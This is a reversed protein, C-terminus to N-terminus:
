IEEGFLEKYQERSIYVARPKSGDLPGIFKHLEMQDIIRAARAYGMKFRRQVMSTSAQGTLIVCKLVSPMLDDFEKEEEMAEEQPLDEKVAIANEVERDFECVNNDKVFDVVTAVEENTVYAGQVRKPEDYDIPAYLMDGRGLLTEGGSQDLITRSDIISKVAFAIRSPLNAKITGTIVDVSPRQTALILHIGAARAKQAMSMIKDELEKRNNSMMLEALEDVIVVIYPLKTETGDKVMESKNFEQINRLCYKSLLLYRREMELKVWKFANIAQQADTIIEETLLHPIGKYITFEVHKPDILVLRVDEPSSKYLISIIISNLCASKGSGTAGAILLHPMKELNCIMNTGAIDKGLALTLPSSSSSFEKSSIIDRLGVIDIKENPVEIGVARKGPIPTEIRIKGNSALYYEIDTAFQEIKKIPIGPPMELEYRTVAPGHMIANVTAPLKLGKLTEELLRAKEECEATYSEPPAAANSILFDISPPVYVSATKRKTKPVEVNSNPIIDDIKIQREAKFPKINITQKNDKEGSISKNLKNIRQDFSMLSSDDEDPIENYYGSHDNDVNFTHLSLDEVEGSPLLPSYEDDKEIVDETSRENVSSFNFAKDDNLLKQLRAEATEYKDDIYMNPRKTNETEKDQNQTPQQRKDFSINIQKAFLDGNTIPPRDEAIPAKPKIAVPEIKRVDFNDSYNIKSTKEKEKKNIIDEALQASLNDGNVIEGGVIQDSFDKTPLIAVPRLEPIDEIHLIKPPKKIPPTEKIDPPASVPPSYRALYQEQELAFNMKDTQNKNINSNTPFQLKAQTYMNIPDGFLIKKAQEKKAMDESTEKYENKHANSYPALSSFGTQLQSFTGEETEPKNLSPIISSVFLSNDTVSKVSKAVGGKVFQAKQPVVSKVKTETRYIGLIGRVCFFTLVVIALSYIIYSAISTIVTSIGYAIVGFLIGGATTNKYVTSIYASFNVSLYSNTTALQLILLIFFAISCIMVVYKAPLNVKRKQILAVGFILTCLFIPYAAFGILGIVVNKIASGVDSLLPTIVLCLLLFASVIVLIVGIIENDGGGSERRKSNNYKKPPM